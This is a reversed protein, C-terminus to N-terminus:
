DRLLVNLDAVWVQDSVSQGAGMGGVLYLSTGVVALARHDMSAVPLPDLTRWSDTRTNYAFISAAPESPVGDYGIGNYNYPNDTGGAFVVWEGWAAAAARYVPPGPHPALRRWSVRAPDNPDIDGRWSSRELVFARPDSDVRVGDIYVIANGSVSGAHGFVPPGPIPTGATWADAQPDYIQVYDINGRDHWGSVLYIRGSWVGSVADDTPVPIDAGHSWGGEDADWIEVNPTSVESGDEAVTYGGLVFVRSGIGEATAALRGPGPVTPLETWEAPARALDLAFARAHVGRWTKRSDLGVFSFVLSATETRIAATANNTVGDPLAPAETWASERFQAATECASLTIAITVVGVFPAVGPSNM